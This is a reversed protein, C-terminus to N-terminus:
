DIKEVRKVSSLIKFLLKENLPAVESTIGKVHSHDPINKTIM